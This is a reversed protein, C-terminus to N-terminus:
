FCLSVASYEAPESLIPTTLIELPIGLELHFALNKLMGGFRIM